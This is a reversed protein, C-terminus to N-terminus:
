IKSACESCAPKPTEAGISGTTKDLTLTDNAARWSHIIEM